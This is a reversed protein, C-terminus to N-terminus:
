APPLRIRFYSKPGVVTVDGAVSRALRRSLALGLGAGSHGDDPVARRGPEFIQDRWEVPVGPGDDWVDILVSESTRDAQVHVASRAYRVANDMIPALVRELIAADAGVAIDASVRVEFRPGDSVPETGVQARVLGEIVPRVDCRGPANQMDIRAAALLTELIQNMSLASDRIAQYAATSEAASRPRALLLDAEAVIRSLPTRLEHSLEAPLRREHRVVAALRDLVADLTTALSQVERFEQDPGFRENLGHASWHAAQRTMADVPQLARGAAFRLVPYAGLLVLVALVASGGISETLAHEYPNESVAAVVTAVQRHNAKWASAYLRYKNSTGYRGHKGALADAAAQLAPGGAAREIARHGAYVWIGTDLAADGPHDSVAVAGKADLYVTAAATTARNRLVTDREGNLRARITVGFGITLIMVWAAIVCLGLLSVRGRLTRRPRSSATDSAV